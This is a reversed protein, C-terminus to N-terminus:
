INALKTNNFRYEQFLWSWRALGYDIPLSFVILMLILKPFTTWGFIGWIILAPIIGGYLLTRKLVYKQRGDARIREWRDFQRKTM